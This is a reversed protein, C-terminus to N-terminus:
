TKHPRRYKILKSFEQRSGGFLRVKSINPVKTKVKALYGKNVLEYKIFYVIGLALFISFSIELSPIGLYLITIFITIMSLIPIIFFHGSRILTNAKRSEERLRKWLILASLNIIAYAILVATNSAEVITSFSVFYIFLIAIITSIIIAVQPTSYKDIKSISRPIEGDRGMAFLVRSTGLLGTLIVGATATIGGFAIIYTLIPIKLISIAASLPADSSAILNYPMLGLAVIAIIVYLVASIAISIVIAKPITKEPDKVESGITTVRSFGTFAFFILAAGGMVGGLGNPLFNSFHSANFHTAGAFLFVLLIIINLAVLVSLTKTSNKIGYINLIAFAIISSIGILIVPFKIGLFSNIYQGFSLAVASIAIMNSFTWMLGGIFGAGPSFAEKAYEYVGGEKSTHRAIESFSLGTLIAIFASVLISIIIGPGSKGIALGIIVFIGAGIIAGLNIITADRLGIVRALQYEM